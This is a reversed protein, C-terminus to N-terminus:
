ASTARTIASRTPPAIWCSPPVTWREASVAALPRTGASCMPPLASRARPASAAPETSPSSARRPGELGARHRGAGLPRSSRRPNPRHHPRRGHEADGAEPDRRSRPRVHSGDPAHGANENLVWATALGGASVAQAARNLLATAQGISHQAANTDAAVRDLAGLAGWRAAYSARGECKLEDPDLAHPWACWRAPSAVIARAAALMAAVAVIDTRSNM